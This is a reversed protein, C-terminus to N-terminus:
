KCLIQTCVLCMPGECMDNEINENRACTCKTSLCNVCYADHKEVYMIMCYNVGRHLWNHVSLDIVTLSSVQAEIQIWSLDLM